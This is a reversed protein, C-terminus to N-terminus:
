IQPQLPLDFKFKLTLYDSVEDKMQFTFEREDIRSFNVLVIVKSAIENGREVIVSLPKIQQKSTHLEFLEVQKRLHQEISLMKEATWLGNKEKPKIEVYFQMSGKYNEYVSNFMTKNEGVERLALVEAPVYSITYILEGITKTETYQEQHDQFWTGFDKSSCSLFLLSLLFIVALKKIGRM